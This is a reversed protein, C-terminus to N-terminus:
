GASAAPEPSLDVLMGTVRAIDGEPTPKALLYGQVLDCGLARVCDLQERTEVGEAVTRIGMAGAMTVITRFIVTDVANTPVNAVFARDIKLKDIPLQRLWALSSHGTGFDDVAIRVGLARIQRLVDIAAGIDHMISSETLELEILSPDVGTARLTGDIMAALGQQRLQIPSLNVAIPIAPLGARSRTAAFACAAELVWRGLHSILGREEAVGIFDGPMLFEGNSRRWRILAEM